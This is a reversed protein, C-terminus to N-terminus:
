CRFECLGWVGFGSFECLSGCGLDRLDMVGDCGRYIVTTEMQKERRGICLGVLISTEM